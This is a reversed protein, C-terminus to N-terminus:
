GVPGGTEMTYQSMVWGYQGSTTRIYLWDPAAGIVDLLQGSSAQGVVASDLGPGSRVNVIQETIKVRKLVIEAPPAVSALPRNVVVPESQVIVPPPTTYVVTQRPPDYVMSGVVAGALLGVGLLPWYRDGRYSRSYHHYHHSHHNRYGGYDHYRPGAMVAPATSLLYLSLALVVCIPKKM